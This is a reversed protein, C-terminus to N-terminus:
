RMRGITKEPPSEPPESADNPDAEKKSPSPPTRTGAGAESETEQKIEEILKQARLRRLEEEDIERPAAPRAQEEELALETRAELFATERAIEDVLDANRDIMDRAANQLRSLADAVSRQRDLRGVAQKLERMKELHEREAAKLREFEERTM